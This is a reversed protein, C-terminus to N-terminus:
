VHVGTKIEIEAHWKVLLDADVCPQRDENRYIPCGFYSKEWDLVSWDDTGMFRSIEYTGTLVKKIKKGKGNAWRQLREYNELKSRSITNPSCKRAKFWERIENPDATWIAGTLTRRMPFKFDRKWGLITSYDRKVFRSIEDIGNLLQKEKM